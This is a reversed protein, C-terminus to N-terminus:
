IQLKKTLDKELTEFVNACLAKVNKECPIIPIYAIFNERGRKVPVNCKECIQKEKILNECKCIVYFQPATNKLNRRIKDRSDPLQIDLGPMNNILKATEVTAKHTLNNRIQHQILEQFKQDAPNTNITKPQQCVCEKDDGDYKDLLDKLERFTNM